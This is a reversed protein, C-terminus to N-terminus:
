VTLNLLDSFAMLTGGAVAAWGAWRAMGLGKM